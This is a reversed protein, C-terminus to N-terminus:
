RAALKLRERKRRTRRAAPFNQRACRRRSIGRSWDDQERGAVHRRSLARGLPSLMYQARFLEALRRYCTWRERWRYVQNAVALAAAGFLAMFVVGITLASELKSGTQGTLIAFALAAILALGVDLAYWMLYREGCAKSAEDAAVARDTWYRESDSAAPARLASNKANKSASWLTLLLRRPEENLLIECTDGEPGMEARDPRRDLWCM